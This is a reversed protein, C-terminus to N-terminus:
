EGTALSGTESFSTLNHAKIMSGSLTYLTDGIYLVREVNKSSDYWYDGARAYDQPSLHTIKTQLQFGKVLDLHYVYAGQFAFRGYAFFEDQSSSANEMVTVPFALLNREASFLLAKHNHLLESETGRDGIKEKFMEVPHRVDSVDFLAIKMGQYLAMTGDGSKVEATDKGFGIIHTADYPHLYDSYGPIKLAGLVEPRAPDHLDIVFLPDVQRFTVMYLREGMFRTSYIREGPALDELSGVRSMSNDLIYVNNKSTGEDSRWMDGSTTAIRFYGNFEDMSFQNLVTGPVEGQGNAEVSGDRLALRYVSTASEGAPAGAILTRAYDPWRSLALYLNNASCYVNEGAGLFGSIAAPENKTLNVAAVLLYNAQVCNPFYRIDSYGIPQAEAKVATDKYYPRLDERTGPSYRIWKNAMLYLNDGVKRSTLYSGELDIERLKTPKARDTIDYVLAQVSPQYYYYPMSQDAIMKSSTEPVPMPIPMPRIGYGTSGIVVLRDGDVYLERPQFDSGGFDIQAVLKLASAPYAQVIRVRQDRVQYIYSGDTKVVDAEDVGAVQVNTGSYNGAGKAADMSEMATPVSLGEDASRLYVPYNQRSALDELLKKLNAESGVVPLPAGTRVLKVQNFILGPPLDARTQPYTLAQTVMDGVGPSKLSYSVIVATDEVQIEEVAISYGGTPKEGWYLIIQGGKIQYSVGDPNVSGAASLTNSAALWCGIAIVMLLGAAWLSKIGRHELWESM